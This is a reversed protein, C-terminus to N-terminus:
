KEWEPPLKLEVATTQGATVTASGITLLHAALPDGAPAGGAALAADRYLQQQAENSQLRKPLVRLTLTGATAPSRATGSGDTPRLWSPREPDDGVLQVAVGQVPAGAADRLTLALEGTWFRFDQETTAGKVVTATENARLKAWDSGNRVNRFARWTGPRVQVSYGGNGDTVVTPWGGSGELQLRGNALPQGNEHIRGRLTGPVFRELDPDFRTTEGERLTVEGLRENAGFAGSEQAVWYQMEVSWTGSPLGDFAFTGDAAIALKARPDSPHREAERGKGRQLRLSAARDKADGGLRRLEAVAEPPGIRGELRAGKTVHVVLEGPAALDVGGIRLPVHGPGLVALGLPAGRPGELVFAGDGGTTGKAVLLARNQQDGWQLQEMGAVLFTRDDWTGALQMALQVETGAVPADTGDLVRLTRQLTAPARVDVRTGESGTVEIPTLVPALRLATPFEVAVTWKGRAVGPVNAFGNAFPGRARVRSDRSSTRQSARPYVRVTFDPIAAGADDHVYVALGGGRQLTLVLDKTGWAVPEPLRVEECEDHRATVIVREANGRRRRLTFTGDRGASTSNDEGHDAERAEVEARALPQGNQDVVRGTISPLSASTRVVITVEEVPRDASLVGKVPATLEHDGSLSVEYRGAPLGSRCRFTGDAGSVAGTYTRPAIRPSDGGGGAVGQMQISLSAKAVPAGREDVVRGQLVVGPAMVVDGVDVVTGAGITSWRAGMAACGDREVDLTFQYPPPPWFPFAFTGDAGTTQKVPNKWDFKAHDRLWADMREENATWGHLNAICGALPAGSPDVCRGRVTATPRADAAPSTAGVPVADRAVDTAAAPAAIPAGGDTQLAVTPTAAPSPEPAAPPLPAPGADGLLAWVAVATGLVLVVVGAFAGLRM